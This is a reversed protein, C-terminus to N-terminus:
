KDVVIFSRTMFMDKDLEKTKDIREVVTKMYKQKIRKMFTDLKSAENLGLILLGTKDDVKKIYGTIGLKVAALRVRELYGPTLRNAHVEYVWVRDNEVTPQGVTVDDVVGSKLARDIDNIDFYFNHKKAGKTEPFYFDIVAAALNVPAGKTPYMHFPMEATANIELVICKKPDDPNIIVDVGGQAMGDVSKLARVAMDKVEDSILHTEDIGEGGSSLNTLNKIFVQEGDPLVSDETLNLEKLRRKLEYDRTIPKKKLYPNKKREKNKADILESITSVGDGTVNAPIRNVASFMTDGITHMRYEKGYYHKEVLIRKYVINKKYHQIIEDVEDSSMIHTFVGKGMTGETPKIVVPYGIKEAYARIDDQANVHFEESAAISIGAAKFKDITKKKDHCINFMSETVKDGRSRYFFHTKEGDSLSFVLKRLSKKSKHMVINPIASAEKYYKLTLGRRYGEMAILLADLEFGSVSDLMRQPYKPIPETSM